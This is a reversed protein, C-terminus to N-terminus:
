CDHIVKAPTFQVMDLASAKGVIKILHSFVEPLLTKVGNFRHVDSAVIHGCGNKLLALATHRIKKGYMGLLSGANIQLLVGSDRYHYAVRYDDVVDYCREPHAWVPTVGDVLMDFFVTSAYIPIEFPPMEILAYKGKSNITLRKDEKILKPLEPCLMLEAGLHLKVDMGRQSVTEGFSEFRYSIKSIEVGSYPFHPTLIIEKVGAMIADKLILLSEELDKAGDDIGPLIHTHTDIFNVPEM